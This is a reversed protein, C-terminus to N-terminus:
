SFNFEFVYNVDGNYLYKFDDNRSEFFNSMFVNKNIDNLFAYYRASNFTGEFDNSHRYQNFESLNVEKPYGFGSDLTVKVSKFDITIYLKNGISSVDVGEVRGYITALQTSISKCNHTFYNQIMTIHNENIEYDPLYGWSYYNSAFFPHLNLNSTYTEGIDYLIGSLVERSYPLNKPNIIELRPVTIDIKNSGDYLYGNITETSYPTKYDGLRFTIDGTQNLKKNILKYFVDLHRVLGLDLVEYGYKLNNEM